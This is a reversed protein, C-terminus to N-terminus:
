RKPVPAKVPVSKLAFGVPVDVILTPAVYVFAYDPLLDPLGVFRYEMGVAGDAQMTTDYGGNLPVRERAPEPGELYVENHVVWTRHSEFAPGGRDYAVAIRVRLEQMGAAGRERRVSQLAVTVGGRRRDIALPKGDAHKALEVFRIPVSDAAITMHFEGQLDLSQPITGAPLLYDLQMRATGGADSIPIEYSAEPSFPRLAVSANSAAKIAALSYQVFLPRLRPEPQVTLFVRALNKRRPDLAAGRGGITIVEAPAAVLRFPGVHRVATTEPEAVSPRVRLKLERREPDADFNFGGHSALADLAPWFETSPLDLEVPRELLERPLPGSDIRNRTAKSLGTLWEGLPKTGQLTVRSARMSELAQRRELEQRIRDVAERVSVTPLL